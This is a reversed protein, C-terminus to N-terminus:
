TMWSVPRKGWMVTSRLAPRASSSAPAPRAALLFLAGGFDEGEGPEVEGLEAGAIGPLEGAALALADAEGAGEGGIGADQQHVLGEAREIGEGAGLHLGHQAVQEGADAFGDQQDGVIEVFGEVQGLADDEEFGALDDGIKGGGFDQLGCFGWM